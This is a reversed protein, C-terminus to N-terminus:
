LRNTPRQYATPLRNIPRQYALIVDLVTDVLGVDIAILQHGVGMIIVTGEHEIAVFVGVFINEEVAVDEAEARGVHGEDQFDVGVLRVIVPTGVHIGVAASVAGLGPQDVLEAEAVALGIGIWLVVGVKVGPNGCGCAIVHIEIKATDNRVQRGVALIVDPAVHAVLGVADFVSVHHGDVGVFLRETFGCM